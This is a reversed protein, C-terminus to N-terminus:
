SCLSGEGVIIYVPDIPRFMQSGALEYSRSVQVHIAERFMGLRKMTEIAEGLTRLLVANVVIRGRVRDRLLALVQPLERSGGVFAADLSGSSRLFEVAEGEVFRINRANREGAETRAFAIAEPRRDIAIVERSRRSLALSVAGTGCGIDIVVEDGQLEMKFLAIALIEERTPGGRVDM